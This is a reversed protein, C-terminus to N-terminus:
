FPCGCRLSQVDGTVLDWRKTRLSFTKRQLDGARIWLGEAQNSDPMWPAIGLAARCSILQGTESSPSPQRPQLPFLIQAMMKGMLFGTKGRSSFDEIYLHERVQWVSGRPMGCGKSPLCPVLIVFYKSTNFHFQWICKFFYRFRINAVLKVDLRLSPM